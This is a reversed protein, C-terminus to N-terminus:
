TKSRQKSWTQTHVFIIPITFNNYINILSEIFDADSEQINPGYFCYWICHILNNKKHTQIRRKIEELIKIIKKDISNKGKNTVGCSDYLRYPNGNNKGCFPTFDDIDEMPCGESEKAMKDPELKLFENILTSKGVGSNGLILINFNNVILNRM